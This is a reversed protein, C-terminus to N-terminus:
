AMETVVYRYEATTVKGNVRRTLQEYEGPGVHTIRDSPIGYGAEGPSVNWTQINHRAITKVGHDTVTVTQERENDSITRTETYTLKGPFPYAGTYHLVGFISGWYGMSAVGKLPWVVGLRLNALGFQQLSTLNETAPKAAATTPSIKPKGM